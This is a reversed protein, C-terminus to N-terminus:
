GGGTFAGRIITTVEIDVDGAIVSLPEPLFVRDDIDVTGVDINDPFTAVRSCGVRFNFKNAGGVKAAGPAFGNINRGRFANTKAPWGQRDGIASFFPLEIDNGIAFAVFDALDVPRSGKIMASTPFFPM